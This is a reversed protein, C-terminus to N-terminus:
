NVQWLVLKEGTHVVGAFYLQMEDSTSLEVIDLISNLRKVTNLAKIFEEAKEQTVSRNNTVVKFHYPDGGYEYWEVVKGEGFLTTILDEVAAPTGKKRHIFQSRKILERKQEIPLSNEYFDVHKQHALYDLLHEPLKDVDNLNSLSEAERYADKLEKEVAEGLAVIFPDVKLSPPLLDVISNDILSLM